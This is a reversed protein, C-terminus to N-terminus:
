GSRRARARSQISQRISRELTDVFQNANAYRAEVQDAKAFLEDLRRVIELQEDSENPPKRLLDLM